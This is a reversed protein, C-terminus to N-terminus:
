ARGAQDFGAADNPMISESARQVQIRLGFNKLFDSSAM